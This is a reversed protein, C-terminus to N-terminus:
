HFAQHVNPLKLPEESFLYFRFKKLVFLIAGFEMEFAYCNQKAPNKKRCAFKEHYIKGNEKKQENFARFSVKSTGMEAIFPSQFDSFDLVNPSPLSRKLTKLPVFDSKAM